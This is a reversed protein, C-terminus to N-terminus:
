SSNKDTIISKYNKLVKLSVIKNKKKNIIRFLEAYYENSFLLKKKYKGILYSNFSNNFNNM